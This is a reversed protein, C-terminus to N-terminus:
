YFPWWWDKAQFYFITLSSGNRDQSISLPYLINPVQKNLRIGVAELEEELLRRQVDGKTADMMILM